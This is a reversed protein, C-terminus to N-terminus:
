GRLCLPAFVSAFLISNTKKADTKAIDRRRPENLISNGPMACCLHSAAVRATKMLGPSPEASPHSAFGAASSPRPPGSTQPQAPPNSASPAYFSPRSAPPEPINDMLTEQLVPQIRYPHPHRPFLSGSAVGFRNHTKLATRRRSFETLWCGGVWSEAKFGIM